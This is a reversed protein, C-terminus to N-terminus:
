KESIQKATLRYGREEWARRMVPNQILYADVNAKPVCNFPCSFNVCARCVYQRMVAGAAVVSAATVAALGVIAALAAFGYQDLEQAIFWIDYGLVAIPIGLLFVAALAMMLGKELANMPEPHYRWLKLLGHNAPCHLVLGEEAYYPCHCCLFRTEAIGLVVPFFLLYGIMPWWAGKEIGILVTGALVGLMAPSVVAYFLFLDKARWRCHLVERNECGACQAEDDWTCPRDHDHSM